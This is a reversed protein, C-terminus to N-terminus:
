LKLALVTINDRSGSSHATQVLYAAITGPPCKHQSSLTRVLTAVDENSVVDWLGDCALILHDGEQFFIKGQDPKDQEKENRICTIKPESPVTPLGIDRAVALTGGVRYQGRVQFVKQGIRTIGKKFRPDGPKADETLQYSTNEKVLLARSDGVNPLYIAGGIELAAVLTTGGQAPRNKLIAIPQLTQLATDLEAIVHSLASTITEGNLENSQSLLKSLRTPMYHAVYDAARKEDQHGDCVGHLQATITEEKINLTIPLSFYSDEDDMRHGQTHHIGVRDTSFSPQELNQFNINLDKGPQIKKLIEGQQFAFATQKELKESATQKANPKLYTIRKENLNLQDPNFRLIEQQNSNLPPMPHSKQIFDNVQQPTEETSALSEESDSLSLSQSHSHVPNTSM